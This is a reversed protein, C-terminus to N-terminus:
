KSTNNSQLPSSTRINPLNATIGDGARSVATVTIDYNTDNRLNSFTATPVTVNAIDNMINSHEDSSIM